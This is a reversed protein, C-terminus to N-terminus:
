EDGRMKHARVERSALFAVIAAALNDATRDNHCLNHERKERAVFDALAEALVYESFYWWRM